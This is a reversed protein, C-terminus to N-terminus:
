PRPGRAKPRAAEQRVLEHAREAWDCLLPRTDRPDIIEEIVFREATRFPSRVAELRGEIEARLAAPDEAAELERRYAAELGGAIPLSGWSGSPWAYRLNLRSANGAASGAIGYVKRVLVSVWPVTAQYVAVFARTGRRITGAREAATGIVFGPQDVLNCVPLQFTDCLDVFRTLKDSADGTLGGGYVKPDSALVGVPRGALRALSTVLPRGYRPGLEFISGRDFVLELIRRMDYPQRQDRPVISLLERERRDAPDSASVCPPAEWVSAPLYSLFRKVQSLADEEDAAENDVAGAATQARAGGLEEKDPSEGMGAMAVVPPGAVFLQATGRVIVSFHSAVVRAAGLGACPGMAAAVVPVTSLNDVVVEWGPVEPVYTFGLQELQRVSGGGGTGDVLRVLPIRLENALKEAYVAKRFIAADAAGGRVTFDDGQVAVRRGDVRGQGIVVNAPRLATLRGESDYEGAGAIMGTEQFSGRDLLREIRERVTMRGSAHQREVREPGGLERALAERRRLEEIETEWTMPRAYEPCACFFFSQALFAPRQM